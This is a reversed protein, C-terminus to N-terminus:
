FNTKGTFSKDKKQNSIPIEETAHTPGVYESPIDNDSTTTIDGDTLDLKPATTFIDGAPTTDENIGDGSISLWEM